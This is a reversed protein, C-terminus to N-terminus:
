IGRRRDATGSHVCSSLGLDANRAGPRLVLSAFTRAADGTKENSVSNVLKSAVITKSPTEVM